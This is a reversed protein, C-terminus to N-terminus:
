SLIMYHSLQAIELYSISTNLQGKVPTGVLSQGIPSLDPEAVSSWGNEGVNWRGRKRQKLKLYWRKQEMKDAERKARATQARELEAHYKAQAEEFKARQEEVDKAQQELQKRTEYNPQSPDSSSTATSVDWYGTRPNAGQVGLFDGSELLSKRQERQTKKSAFMQRTKSVEREGMEGAKQAQFDLGLADNAFNFSRLHFPPRQGESTPHNHVGEGEDNVPTPQLNLLARKEKKGKRIKDEGAVISEVEALKQPEKMGVRIDGSHVHSRHSEVRAVGHAGGSADEINKVGETNANERPESIGFVLETATLPGDEKYESRM